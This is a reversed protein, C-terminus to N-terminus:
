ASRPNAITNGAFTIDGATTFTYVKAGDGHGAHSLTYTPASPNLRNALRRLYTAIRLKRTANM